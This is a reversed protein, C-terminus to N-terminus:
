RWFGAKRGIAEDQAYGTVQGFRTNTYEIIGDADTIIMASASHEVLAYLKRQERVDAEHQEIDALLTQRMHEFSRALKGLEDNGQPALPQSLDGRSITAAARELAKLPRLVRKRVTYAAAAFLALLLGFLAVLLIMTSVAHSRLREIDREFQDSVAASLGLVADIGVTANRYWQEADVPYPRRAASSAYVEARLEEYHQLLDRVFLQQARELAPTTPLHELISEVRERTRVAVSRYEGLVRLESESLPMGRAIAVGVAARERGLYESLTFLVDKIVPGSALTYVNDGLPLMAIASLSQLDAIRRTMLEIWQEADLGNWIGQLQEDVQARYSEMAGRSVKVSDIKAFVPHEDARLSLAQALEMMQAHFGDVSARLRVMEAQLGPSAERPSALIAATVGREMALRASALHAVDALRNAKHIWEVAHAKDRSDAVQVLGAGASILAFVGLLAYFLARITM